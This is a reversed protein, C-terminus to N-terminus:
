LWCLYSKKERLPVGHDKLFNLLSGIVCFNIIKLNIFSYCQSVKKVSSKSHANISLCDQKHSDFHHIWRQMSNFRYVDSNINWCSIWWNNMHINCVFASIM